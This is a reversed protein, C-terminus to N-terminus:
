EPEIYDLVELDFGSIANYKMPAGLLQIKGVGLDKLIQSGVGVTNYTREVPSPAPEKALATDISALLQESTETEALLVVVGHGVRAVHALCKALNWSPRGPLESSVLDRLATALHVRVPTPQDPSITGRSLALHVEGV